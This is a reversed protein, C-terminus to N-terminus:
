IKQAQGGQQMQSTRLRAQEMNMTQAEPSLTSGPIPNNMLGPVINPPSGKQGPVQQGQPPRQMQLTLGIEKLALQAQIADDPDGTALLAMVMKYKRAAESELEFRERESMAKLGPYDKVKGITKWTYEKPFGLAEYVQMEQAAALNTEPSESFYDVQIQFKTNVFDSRKWPMEFARDSLEDTQYGGNIFQKLLTNATWITMMKETKIRPIYLQDKAAELRKMALASLQFSLDGYDFNSYTARQIRAVLQGFFAQHSTSADKLGILGYSEGTRLNAVTKIGFPPIKSKRGDRSIFQLAPLISMINSTFWSSASKNQLDYMDRVPAYVSEGRIRVADPRQGILPTTPCFVFFAPNMGLNHPKKGYGEASKGDIFVFNKEPTWVDKFKATKSTIEIGYDRKIEAPTKEGWFNVLEYGNLGPEFSVCRTDYSRIDIDWKSGDTKLLVRRAIAGRLVSNWHDYEEVPWEGQAALADDAEKLLFDLFKELESAKKDDQALIDFRREATGLQFIIRDAFTRPDNLTVHEVDPMRSKGDSTKWIYQELLYRQMDEDQRQYWKGSRLYEESAEARELIPDKDDM